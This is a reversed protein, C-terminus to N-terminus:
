SKLSQSKKPTMDVKVYDEGTQKEQFVQKSARVRKILDLESATISEEPILSLERKLELEKSEKPGSKRKKCLEFIERMLDHDDEDDSDEEEDKEESQYKGEYPDYDPDDARRVISNKLSLQRKTLINPNIPLVHVDQGVLSTPMTPTGTVTIVANPGTITVFTVISQHNSTQGGPVNMVQIGNDFLGLLSCNSTASISGSNTLVTNSGWWTLMVCFTGQGLAAPFTMTNDGFTIALNSGVEYSTPSPQTPTGFVHANTSTPTLSFATKGYHCSIIDSNGVTSLSPKYLRVRYSVWLEGVVSAAQSGVTALQFNGLDNFRLDQNAALSGSRIYLHQLVNDKRDCEVPYMNSVAPPASKAFQYNEMAQKTTFAAQTVNYNTAGVVVGLATNTSNLALASTTKYYFILQQFQYEEFNSAITALWPFTAAIGPNIPFVTNTFASSSNIDQIYESHCVETFQDTPIFQPITQGMDVAKGQADYSLPAGSPYYDGKGKLYRRSGRMGAKKYKGKGTLFKGFRNVVSRPVGGLLTDVSKGIGGIADSFYDGKGRLQVGGAKRIGAKVRRKDASSLKMYVNKPLLAM